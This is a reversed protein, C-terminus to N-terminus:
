LYGLGKLSKKVEEEDDSSFGSEGKGFARSDVRTYTVPHDKIYDSDFIGELVKGDLDEPVDLGLMHLVTPMVDYIRAGTVELGKKVKKGYSMFVGQFRHTGSGRNLWAPPSVLERRLEVNAVHMGDELVFVIDPANELYEGKYVEERRNVTVAIAEGTEPDKLEKLKEIILDRLNEYEEGPEVIGGAERGRLNIHIAQETNSALYAMTQRWDIQELHGFHSLIALRKPVVKRYLSKVKKYLPSHSFPARLRRLIEGLLFLLNRRPPVPMSKRKLLGLKELWTNLYFIKKLEGFGHDSMIVLSTREDLSDVIEGIVGDLVRYYDKVMGEIRAADPGREGPDKLPDFYKWLAHNIRDTETYVMAFCDLDHRSLLYKMARTRQRTCYTIQEMFRDITEETYDQWFVDILYEGTHKEMEKLLEPPHTPIAAKGPTLMGTIVFSDIEQPPFTLPLNVMGLRRNKENLIHWLTKARILNSNVVKMAMSDGSKYVFDYINHRAPNKGTLFSAWAPGTIPPMTSMLNGSVGDSIIRGFNPLDGSEVWARILGYSGGDLGIIIVKDKGDNSNRFM